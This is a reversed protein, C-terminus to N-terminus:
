RCLSMSLRCCAQAKGQLSWKYFTNDDVNGNKRQSEIFRNWIADEVGFSYRIKFKEKIEYAHLIIKRCAEGEIM